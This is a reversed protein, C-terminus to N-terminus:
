FVPAPKAHLRSEAGDVTLGYGPEGLARLGLRRLRARLTRESEADLDHFVVEPGDQALALFDFRLAGETEALLAALAAGLAEVSAEELEVVNRLHAQVRGDPGLLRVVFHCTRQEPALQLGGGAGRPIARSGLGCGVGTGHRSRVASTRACV